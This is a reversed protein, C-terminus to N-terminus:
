LHKRLDRAVEEKDLHLYSTTVSINSHGLARSILAVSAGKNYLNKAFGRRLDHPRINSIGFKESYSKLRKPIINNTKNDSISNANRTIFVFSNEKNNNHIIKENQRILAKLLRHLVEDFPLLLQEHNKMISGDLKLMNIDFDIHKVQLLSLTNLRIGTRYMLLAATGDRLQIYDKFDLKSLLQNIDEDTTGEKIKSDVKVKILKWFNNEIWGNDLCRSLFAKLCKLRTLRTQNSVNMKSLWYYISSVDIDQVKRVGTEKIFNSVHLEYDRITRPRNGSIEMQKIVMSLAEIITEPLKRFINDKLENLDETITYIDKKRTM